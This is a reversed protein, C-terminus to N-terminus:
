RRSPCGMTAVTNHGPLGPTVVLRAAAIPNAQPATFLSVEATRSSGPSVDVLFVAVARGGILGSGIPVGVGDIRANVVAGGAPSFVLVQVRMTYPDGALGLGLVTRPLGRRPARSGLTLRVRLRARAAPACEEAVVETRRTLYYGLKAGSGDNIFVGVAPHAADDVPMTGTLVTGALARQEAARASWVLLRGEAAARALARVMPVPAAGGSALITFVTRIANAFYRDQAAPSPYRAYVDSLLIRLANAATLAPGGPVAVPGTVGLLYSMAIPDTAVVTDVTRGTRVRYMERLLRAATPFDPGVNVDAPFIAPLDTYVQRAEADLGAVPADFSRLDGAATAVSSLRVRGHDVRLVAFAGPMGGTARVEAPNQFVVMVTRPGYGGLLPPLLTTARVGAATLAAAQTLGARLGAVASAVPATLDAPRIAAIDDRAQRMAAAAAAIQPAARSLPGLDIRGHRPALAAPDLTDSAAVLEPLGSGVLVDLVRAVTAVARLDDGIWPAHGGVRWGVTHTDRRAAATHARLRALIAAAGARDGATVQETLEGMLHAAALLQTRVGVGDAVVRAAGATAGVSAVAVCCLVVRWWRSPRGPPQGTGAGTV